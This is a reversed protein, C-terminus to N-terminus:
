KKDKLDTKFTIKSGDKLSMLGDVVVMEGDKLGDSVVAFSNQNKTIKVNRRQAKGDETVVFVYDGEQGHQVAVEPVVLLQKEEGLSLSVNVFMGPWLAEDENTFVARAVFTGTSQDVANDIYELTGTSVADVGQRKAVVTIPAKQKATRVADFYNQSLAVQVRIPKVQNITVLPQTDNAKVTNGTTVNITGTRGSIPATIRTFDLQVQVSDLAAETAGVTAEQAKYAAKTEDLNANTAFGKAALTRSREYQQRLNELQARDRRVNAELQKLQAKLSRDDLQFLLAGKEVVDGDKFNVEMVQSDLRSRVSVSEYATVNGVEQLELVLDKREVPAVSVLIPPPANNKDAKNLNWVYLGLVSAIVASVIVIKRNM